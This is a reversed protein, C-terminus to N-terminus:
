TPVKFFKRNWSIKTELFWKQINTLDIDLHSPRFEENSFVSALWYIYYTFGIIIRNLIKAVYPWFLSLVVILFIGLIVCLIIFMVIQLTYKAKDIPVVKEDHYSQDSLNKKYLDIVKTDVSNLEIKGTLEVNLVSQYKTIQKKEDDGLMNLIRKFEEENLVLEFFIGLDEKDQISFQAPDLLSKNNDYFKQYVENIKQKKLEEKDKLTEDSQVKKIEKIIIDYNIDFGSKVLRAMTQMAKKKKANDKEIEEQTKTGITKEPVTTTSKSTYKDNSSLELKIPNKFVEDKELKKNLIYLMNESYTTTNDFCVNCAKKLLLLQKAFRDSNIDFGSIDCIDQKWKLFEKITSIDLATSLQYYKRAIEYANLVMDKSIAGITMNQVVADPPIINDINFSIEFLEKIAYQMDGKIDEYIRKRTEEDQRLSKFLDNDPTLGKIQEKLKLSYYDYYKLLIEKTSGLLVILAIPLYNFNSAYFGFEYYAKSICRDYLQGGMEKTPIKGLVCPKYCKKNEGEGIPRYGNGFHWDPIIFWDYWREQCLVSTDLSLPIKDPKDIKQTSANYTLISPLTIDEALRCFERSINMSKWPNKTSLVCNKYASEDNVSCLSYDSNVDIVNTKYIDIKDKESKPIVANFVSNKGFIGYEKATEITCIEGTQITDIANDDIQDAVYCKSPDEISVSSPALENQVPSASNLRNVINDYINTDM